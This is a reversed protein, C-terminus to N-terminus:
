NGFVFSLAVMALNWFNKSRFLANTQSDSRHDMSTIQHIEYKRHSTYEGYVFSHNKKQLGVFSHISVANNEQFLADGWDDIINRLSSIKSKLM